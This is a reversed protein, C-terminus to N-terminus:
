RTRELELGRSSVRYYPVRALIFNLKVLCPGGNNDERDGRSKRPTALVTRINIYLPAHHFGYHIDDTFPILESETITLLNYVSFHMHRHNKSPKILHSMAKSFLSIVCNGAGSRSVQDLQHNFVHM